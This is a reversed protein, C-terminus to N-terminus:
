AEPAVVDDQLTAGFADVLFLNWVDGVGARVAHGRKIEEVIPSAM